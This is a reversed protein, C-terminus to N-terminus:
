SGDADLEEIVTGGRMARFLTWFLFWWYAPHHKNIAIDIYVTNTDKDIRIGTQKIWRPLKAM